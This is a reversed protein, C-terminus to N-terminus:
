ELLTRNDHVIILSSSSSSSSKQNTKNNKGRHDHHDNNSRYDIMISAIFDSSVNFCHKINMYRLKTTTTTKVNDNMKMATTTTILIKNNKIPLRLRVISIPIQMLGAIGYDTIRYCCQLNIWQLQKLLKGIM